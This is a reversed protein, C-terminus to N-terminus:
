KFGGAGGAGPSIMILVSGFLGVAGAGGTIM